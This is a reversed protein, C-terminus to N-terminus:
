KREIGSNIKTKNKIKREEIKEKSASGIASFFNKGYKAGMISVRYKSIM